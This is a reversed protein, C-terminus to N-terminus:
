RTTEPVCSRLGMIRRGLVEATTAPNETNDQLELHLSQSPAAGAVTAIRADAGGVVVVVVVLSPVIGGSWSQDPAQGAGKILRAGRDPALESRDSQEVCVAARLRLGVRQCGTMEPERAGSIPGSPQDPPNGL